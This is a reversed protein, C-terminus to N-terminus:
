WLVIKQIYSNGAANVRIIYTGKALESISVPITLQKSGPKISKVVRGSIEMITIVAEADAKPLEVMLSGTTPNPWIDFMGGTATNCDDGDKVYVDHFAVAFGCSTNVLYNILTAGTHLATFVGGYTMTGVSPVTSNWLGSPVTESLTIASGACVTDAGTITGSVPMPLVTVMMTDTASGCINSISYSIISQGAAVGSVVGNSVTAVGSSSAWAGGNVTDALTTQSGACVVPTGTITGAVPQATLAISMTDTSTGCDNTVSYSIIATGAANGTVVGGSVTATASSSSWTGGGASSTLTTVGPVCMTNTGTITGANATDKIIMYFANSRAIKKDGYMNYLTCSITDGTALSNTIYTASGDGVPLNNKKWEYYPHNGHNHGGATFVVETGQCVSDASRSISISPIGEKRITNDTMHCIYMAGSDDVSFPQSLQRYDYYIDPTALDNTYDILVNASLSNDRGKLGGAVPYVMGSPTIMSYTFGMGWFYDNFYINQHKDIVINSLFYPQSSDRAPVSNWYNSWIRGAITDLGTGDANIRMLYGRSTFVIRNMSDIVIGAPAGIDLGTFSGGYEPIVGTGAVRARMIGSNDIKRICASKDTFYINGATDITMAIPHYLKAASAPSGEGTTDAQRAKGAITSIIGNRDIKRIVDNDFDVIFLNGNKDCIMNTINSGLRAFLAPGGDGSHGFKNDMGAITSISGSRTIKRIVANRQLVYLNGDKDLTSCYPQPIYSETAPINNTGSSSSGEPYISGNYTVGAIRTDIRNTVFIPLEMYQDGCANHLTRNIVTRGPMHATIINGPGISAVSDALNRWPTSSTAGGWGVPTDITTTEGPYLVPNSISLGGAPPGVVIGRTSFLPCGNVTKSYSITIDDRYTIPNTLHGTSDIRVNQYYYSYWDVSWTGGPVANTYAAGSGFCVFSPGTIPPLTADKVVIPRTVYASGCANTETYTIVATGSSVGNIVVYQAGNYNPPITAVTTNSSSWSGWITGSIAGTFGTPCITDALGGAIAPSVPLQATVHVISQITSVCSGSTLIVSYTGSSTVSSLAPNQSTSSYGGPGSWLYSVGPVSTYAHLTITGGSCVALATDTVLAAPLGRLVIPETYNSWCTNGIFRAHIASYSGASLGTISIRGAADTRGPFIAPVGDKKYSITVSDNARYCNLAIVGASTCVPHVVSDVTLSSGSSAIHVTYSGTQNSITDRLVLTYAGTDTLTLNNFIVSTDTSVLNSNHDYWRCTISTRGKDAPDSWWPFYNRDGTGTTDSYHYMNHAFTTDWAMLRVTDGACYTGGGTILPTPVPGGLHIAIPPVEAVPCTMTDFSIYYSARVTYEGAYRYQSAYASTADARIVYTTDTATVTHAIHGNGWDLDMHTLLQPHEEYSNNGLSLIVSSPDSLNIQELSWIDWYRLSLRSCNFVFNCNVDDSWTDTCGAGDSVTLTYHVTGPDPSTAPYIVVPGTRTTGDSFNWTYTYGAASTGTDALYTMYTTDRAVRQYTAHAYAWCDAAAKNIIFCCAFLLLVWRKM